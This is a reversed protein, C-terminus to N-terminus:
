PEVDWDDIPTEVDGIFIISERLEELTRRQRTARFPVVRAVPEGDQTIVVEEDKKVDKLIDTWEAEGVAVTKAMCTDYEQNM